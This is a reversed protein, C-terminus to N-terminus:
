YSSFVKDYNKLITKKNETIDKLLNNNDLIESLTTIDKNNNPLISKGTNFLSQSVLLLERFFSYASLSDESLKGNVSLFQIKDTTTKGILKHFKTKDALIQSTIVFDLTKLYGHSKKMDIKNKINFSNSSIIKRYMRKAESFINNTAFRDSHNFLLKKFQNFLNQDGAIYDLKTFALFEWISARKRLYKDYANIDWVLRSSEGEPRLRFDVSLPFLIKEIQHLFNSIHQESDPTETKAVILLDLDSGFSLDESSLSGLAAVFYNDRNSINYFNDSIKEYIYGSLQNSFESPTIIKTILRANLYFFLRETNLKALDIGPYFLARSLFDDIFDPHELLASTFMGSSAILDLFLFLTKKVRFESYLISPFKSSEIIKRFDHLVLDPHACNRLYNNLLPIITKALNITRADFQKSGTLTEGKRIYRLDAASKKSNLFVSETFVNEGNSEARTLRNFIDSIENRVITLRELFEVESNFGFYNSLKLLNEKSNPIAHTQTDNEIQLYHEIKRLYIYDARLLEAEKRNILGKLKLLKLSTLTNGNLLDPHNKINILQLAQILFEIDRIGGKARKIDNKNNAEKEVNLKMERVRKMFNQPTDTATIFPRIYNKFKNYTSIDGDVFSLKLLMQREWDEGRTEYYRIYDFYRKALPSYKGDPRLRLDVRYIFGNETQETASEVFLRIANSLIKFFETNDKGIIRDKDYFFILDIDSSYNLENGGLKGLAAIVYDKKPQEIGYKASVENFCVAFFNSTIAKAMISLDAVTEEFNALGLIDRVGIKLNLKNKLMRFYNTKSKFSKFKQSGSQIEKSLMDLNLKSHLYNEDFLRFLFGPSKVIVDTLYNSNAAIASIIEIHHEYKLSDQIFSKLDFQALLIREINAHFSTNHQFKTSFKQLIAFFYDIEAPSLFGKVANIINEEFDKNLM